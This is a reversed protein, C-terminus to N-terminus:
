VRLVHIEVPPRKQLRRGLVRRLAARAADILGTEDQRLAPPLDALTAVFEDTLTAMEQDDPALLGPASIQARGRLRGAQDVAISAVVVGERLMQRRAAMVAGALPVLRKGEVALRGVPASEIVEPEGPALGLVDGDEILIPRAGMERALEAHATLHRWEGHVPVAYRPRVLRYLRRLEDRAPHGSVHVMHDAETMVRVGRRVLNDQVLGIARENGPIVRSSFLVTDSEGLAIRPHTDAAIRALASRAEGQSGTVLILLNDDPIEEAADEPLFPPLTAFYGAARAAADLNRLSRGVLAVSRGAARAALAISEVRAVNSAFCTVAIRGTMDRILAALNRRVDAESGSHGEVMANTSDCIMALVGREGLAALAAEDTPPGVLPTPDLKWDGTHLILGAPTEIALAQAEPISHAVPILRLRFPALAIEGGPPVIHLTVEALLQAEALKRRLMAAAFPTAYVPCRLRPWLHAVAGLHDEHAHTIVLGLLAERRAAIFGPDPVLIEAEPLAPGAFGIGCDVALWRERCRYLNFNMGIEGTGGLPLFALDDSPSETM